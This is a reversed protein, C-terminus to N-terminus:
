IMGEDLLAKQLIEHLIKFSHEVLDRNRQGIDDNRLLDKECHVLNGRSVFCFNIIEELNDEHNIPFWRKNDMNQVPSRLILIKLSEKLLDTKSWSKFSVNFSSSFKKIKDKNSGTYGKYKLFGEFATCIDRLGEAYYLKDLDRKLNIIRKNARRYYELFASLTENMEWEVM